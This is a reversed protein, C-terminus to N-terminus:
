KKSKNDHIISSVKGGATLKVHKGVPKDKLYDGMERDGNAYYMIGRGERKDLKFDGEYIDGNKYYTIGKGDKDFNKVYGEYRDGARSGYKYTFIGYGNPKSDKFQGKFTDGNKYYYIGNGEARDVLFEGVYKDRNYYYYIGKGDKNWNHYDGEYKDGNSYNTVGKGEAKGNVFDGDYVDAALDVNDKYMIYKGKGHRKGNSWEGEYIFGNPYEMRGKGEPINHKMQGFYKQGNKFTYSKVSIANNLVPPLNRCSKVLNETNKIEEKPLNAIEPNKNIKDINDLSKEKENSNESSKSSNNTHNKEEKEKKNIIFYIDRLIDLLEKRLKTIDTNKDLNNIIQQLSLAVEDLNIEKNITTKSNTPKPNTNNEYFKSKM